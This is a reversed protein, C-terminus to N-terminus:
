NRNWRQILLYLGTCLALFLFVPLLCGSIVQFIVWFLGGQADVGSLAAGFLMLLLAVALLGQWINMGRM